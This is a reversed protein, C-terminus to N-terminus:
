GELGDAAVHGVARLAIRARELCDRAAVHDGTRTYLRALAANGQGVYEASKVQEGLAVALCLSEGARLNEGLALHAEGVRYHTHARVWISVAPKGQALTAIARAAFETAASSEGLAACIQALMALASPIMPAFRLREAFNLAVELCAKAAGFDGYARHWDALTLQLGCAMTETSHTDAYRLGDVLSQWVVQRDGQALAAAAQANYAQVVFDPYIDRFPAHIAHNAIQRAQAYDGVCQYAWALAGSGFITPIRHGNRLAREFASELQPFGSADGDLFDLWGKAVVAVLIRAGDVNKAIADPISRVLSNRLQDFPVRQMFRRLTTVEAREKHTPEIARLHETAVVIHASAASHEDREFAVEALIRTAIGALEPDGTDSAAVAYHQLYGYTMDSPSERWEHRGIYLDIKKRQLQDGCMKYAHRLAPELMGFCGCSEFLDVVALALSAHWKAGRHLVYELVSVVNRLDRPGLPQAHSELLDDMVGPLAFAAGARDRIGKAFEAVSAHLTYRGDRVQVLGFDVLSDLLEPACRATGCALAESITNPNPEFLSLAALAYCQEDSMLLASFYLRISLEKALESNAKSLYTDFRRLQGSQALVALTRAAISASLPLGHIAQAIREHTAAVRASLLLSEPLTARVLARTEALEFDGVALCQATLANAVVPTRATVIVASGSGALMLARADAAEWVDDLVLLMKRGALVARVARRQEQLPHVTADIGLETCWVTTCATTSGLRLGCCAM